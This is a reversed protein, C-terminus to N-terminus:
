RNERVLKRSSIKECVKNKKIDEQEFNDDFDILKYVRQEHISKTTVYLSRCNNYRTMAVADLIVIDESYRVPIKSEFNLCMAEHITKCVVCNIIRIRIGPTLESIDKVLVEKEM